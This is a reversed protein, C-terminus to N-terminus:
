RIMLAVLIAGTAITNALLALAVNAGALHEAMIGSRACVAFAVLVGISWTRARTIVAM